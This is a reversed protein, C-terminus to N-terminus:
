FNLVLINNNNHKHGLNQWMDMNKLFGCGNM